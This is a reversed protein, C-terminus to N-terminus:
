GSMSEVKAENDFREGLLTSVKYFASSENKITYLKHFKLSLATMFMEQKKSCTSEFCLRAVIFALSSVNLTSLILLLFFWMSVDSEM